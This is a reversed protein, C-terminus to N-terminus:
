SKRKKRVAATAAERERKGKNERGSLRRARTAVSSCAVTDNTSSLWTVGEYRGGFEGDCVCVCVCVGVCVAAPCNILKLDLFYDKNYFFFFLSLSKNSVFYFLVFSAQSM